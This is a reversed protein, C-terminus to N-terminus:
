AILTDANFILDGFIMVPQNMTVTTPYEVGYILDRRYLLADQSQDFVLSGHYHIRGLTGDALSIFRFGALLMDIVSASADRTAPTPCWCTIRFGREQRRVVQTATATSVVRAVIREVGRITLSAGSLNVVWDAQAYVALQAAVLEPTDSPHVQYVYSMEDLLLGVMQNSQTTGSITVTSGVVSATLTPTVAPAMWRQRYRTTNSGPEPMPFVTVNIRGAALDENLSSSNPWGRYVVCDPGPASPSTPGDPYLAAAVLAVIADEVDSQDAM